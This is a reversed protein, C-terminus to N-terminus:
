APRLPPARGRDPRSAFRAAPSGSPAVVATEAGDRGPAAPADPSLEAVPQSLALAQCQAEGGPDTLHHVSHVSTDAAFVALLVAFAIAAVRRSRALGSTALLLAVLM